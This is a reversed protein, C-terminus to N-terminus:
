VQKVNILNPMKKLYDPVKSYVERREQPTLRDGKATVQSLYLVVKIVVSNLVEPLDEGGIDNLYKPSFYFDIQFLNPTQSVVYGYSFKRNIEFAETLNVDGKNEAINFSFKIKKPNYRELTQFDVVMNERVLGAEKLFLFLRGEDVSLDIDPMNNIVVLEPAAIIQRTFIKRNPFKLHRSYVLLLYGGVLLFLIPLLFFLKRM